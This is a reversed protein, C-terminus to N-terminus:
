ADIHGRSVVWVVDHSMDTFADAFFYIFFCDFVFFSSLLFLSSFLTIVKEMIAIGDTKLNGFWALCKGFQEMTVVLESQGQIQTDTGAFPHTFITTCLGFSLQTFM